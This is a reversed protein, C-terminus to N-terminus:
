GPWEEKQTAMIREWGKIEGALVRHAAIDLLNAVSSLELGHDYDDMSLLLGEDIVAQMAWDRWPVLADLMKEFSVGELDPRFNVLGSLGLMEQDVRHDEAPNRGLEAARSRLLNFPGDSTAWLRVIKHCCLFRYTHSPSNRAERYLSTITWYSEPLDCSPLDFSETSPRHPLMRWRADHNLDAIRFGAV